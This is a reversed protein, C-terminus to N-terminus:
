DTEPKQNSKTDDEEEKVWFIFDNQDSDYASDLVGKNVLSNLINSIMRNNLDEIISQLLKDTLCYRVEKTNRNIQKKAHNKIIIASEDHTLTEDMEELEEKSMQSISAMMSDEEAEEKVAGFFKFVLSRSHDVFDDFDNIFFWQEEKM